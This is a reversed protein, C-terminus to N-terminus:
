DEYDYATLHNPTIVLGDITLNSSIPPQISTGNWSVYINITPNDKHSFAVYFMEYSTSQFDAPVIEVNKILTSGSYIKINGISLSSSTSSVKMRLCLSYDGYRLLNSYHLLNGSGNSSLARRGTGSFTGSDAVNSGIPSTSPVCLYGDAEKYVYSNFTGNVNLSQVAGGTKDLKDNFKSAITQDTEPNLAIDAGTIGEVNTRDLNIRSKNLTGTAHLSLDIKPAGNSSGDHLHGMITPAAPNAPNNSNAVYLARWTSGGYRDDLDEYDEISSIREDITDFSSQPNVGLTEELAFVAQQLVKVDESLVYYLEPNTEGTRDEFDLISQRIKDNSKDLSDPYDTLSWIPYKISM